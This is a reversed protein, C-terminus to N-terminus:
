YMPDTLVFVDHCIDHCHDHIIPSEEFAWHDHIIPSEEDEFARLHVNASIDSDFINDEHEYFYPNQEYFYPNQDVGHVGKDKMWSFIGGIVQAFSIDRVPTDEFLFGCAQCIEMEDFDTFGCQPCGTNADVM